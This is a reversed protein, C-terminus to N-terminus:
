WIMNHGFEYIKMMTMCVDCHNAFWWDGASGDTPPGRSPGTSPSSDVSRCLTQVFTETPAGRIVRGGSMASSYRPQSLM